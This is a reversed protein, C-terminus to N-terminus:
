NTFSTGGEPTSKLYLRSLILAITYIDEFAQNVGQGAPPPLAHASDGLIVVRGHGGTTRASTRSDLRPVQYFPWLHLHDTPINRVANRVISPYHEANERFLARLAEKDAELDTVHEPQGIHRTVTILAEDGNFTQPAIVFAGMKPVVIAAPLPHANSEATLDVLDEAPLGLQATSVVAVAAAM